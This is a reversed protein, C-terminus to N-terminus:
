TLELVVFMNARVVKLFSVNNVLREYAMFPFFLLRSGMGYSPEKEIYQLHRIGFGHAISLRSIAAASNMRYFTPFPDHAHTPLNRLRNAVLTHFWHPTLRSALATYHRANPTRFVYLGRPKLVRRIEALHQDVHEVHEVVYNSVCVDFTHNSFPYQDGTIVHAEALSANMKVDADIDVGRLTGLEALFASTHNSAGSGIELISSGPRIVRACLQHFETTGDTWGPVGYYYTKLYSEQWTMSSHGNDVSPSDLHACM